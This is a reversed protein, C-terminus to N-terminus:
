WWLLTGNCPGEQFTVAPLLYAGRGQKQRKNEKKHGEQCFEKPLWSSISFYFTCIEMELEM